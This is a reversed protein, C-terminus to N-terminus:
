TVIPVVTIAGEWQNADFGSCEVFCDNDNDVENAPFGGFAILSDCDDFIGNCREVATPYRYNSADDCDDGGSVNQTPHEWLVASVDLSCEVFGDGDDDLEDDLPTLDGQLDNECLDVKGNCLEQHDVYNCGNCLGQGRDLTGDDVHLFDDEPHVWEDTDDCDDPNSVYNQPQECLRILFSPNGYGDGDSDPYWELLDQNTCRPRMEMLIKMSTRYMEVTPNILMDSDDCDGVVAYNTASFTSHFILEDRYIEMQIKARQVM